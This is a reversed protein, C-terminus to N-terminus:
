QKTVVTTKASSRYVQVVGPSRVTVITAKDGSIAWHLVPGSGPLDIVHTLTAGATRYVKQDGATDLVVLHENDLWELRVVQSAIECRAGSQSLVTRDNWIWIEEKGAPITRAAAIKRGDPSAVIVHNVFEAEDAFDGGLDSLPDLRKECTVWVHRGTQPAVLAFSGDPAAALHAVAGLPVFKLNKEEVVLTIGWQLAEPEMKAVRVNPVKKTSWKRIAGGAATFAWKGDASAAMDEVKAPHVCNGIVGDPHRLIKVIWDVKQDCLLICDQSKVVWVPETMSLGGAEQPKGLPRLLSSWFRTERGVTTLRHEVPDFGVVAARVFDDKKASVILQKPKIQRQSLDAGWVFYGPTYVKGFEPKNDVLWVAAKGDSSVDVAAPVYGLPFKEVERWQGCVFGALVVTVFTNM